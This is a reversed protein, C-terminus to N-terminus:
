EEEIGVYPLKRLEEVSVWQMDTFDKPNFKADEEHEVECLFSLSLSTQGDPRLITKDKLLVKGPKLRLNAEELVERELTEPISSFGEIKGGPFTYLGPYVKEGEHRKLVLYKGQRGREYPPSPPNQRIVAVVTIIHLVTTM